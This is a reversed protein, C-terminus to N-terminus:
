YGKAKLRRVVELKLLRHIGIRGGMDNNLTYDWLPRHPKGQIKSWNEHIFAIRAVSKGSSYAASKKVGAMYVGGQRWSKINDYYTRSAMLIDENGYKGMKYDAYAPSLPTWGPIDQNRLHSKIKRVYKDAIKRQGAITALRINPALFNLLLKTKLWPGFLTASAAKGM